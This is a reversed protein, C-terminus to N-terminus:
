LSTPLIYQHYVFCYTTYVPLLWRYYDGTIFMTTYVSLPWWYYESTISVQLLYWYVPLIHLIYWYHGSTIHAPLPCGHYIGIIAVPLLCSHYIGTMTVSILWWYCVSTTYVLLLWHYDYTPLLWWYYTGTISLWPLYWYYCQYYVPITYVPQRWRYYDDTTYLIDVFLFIFCSHYRSNNYIGAPDVM